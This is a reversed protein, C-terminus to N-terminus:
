QMLVNVASTRKVVAGANPGTAIVIGTPPGAVQGVTLGAGTLQTTADALSLGVVNPVTVLDPGKSVVVNVTGGRDINQGAKPDTSVVTGAPATDSFQESPNVVLKMGELAAKAEDLTKGALRPITRPQPGKSVVVDVQTGKLVASAPALNQGGVTFSMVTGPPANEDFIQGAENYVLGLGDLAAKADAGPKGALDPLARPSPGQSV